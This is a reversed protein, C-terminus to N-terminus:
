SGPTMFRRVHRIPPNFQSWCADADGVYRTLPRNAADMTVVGRMEGPRFGTTPHVAESAADAYIHDEVFEFANPDNVKALNSDKFKSHKLYPALLRVRYDRLQEGALPPPASDGFAHAVADARAQAKVFEGRSEAAIPQGVRRELAAVQRRLNEFESMVHDGSTASDARAEVRALLQDILPGDFRCLAPLVNPNLINPSVDMVFDRSVWFFDRAEIGPPTFTVDVRAIFAGDTWPELEDPYDFQGVRPFSWESAQGDSERRRVLLVEASGPREFPPTQFQHMKPACFMVNDPTASV